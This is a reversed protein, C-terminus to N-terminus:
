GMKAVTMDTLLALLEPDNKLEEILNKKYTAIKILDPNKEHKEYEKFGDPQEIYFKQGEQIVTGLELGVEVIEAERNIGEDFTLVTTGEGYPKSVKNKVVKVKVQNGIITDGEKVQKIRKVELRQSAYFKLAKGGPTTTGAMFMGINDRIQNIFIITCGNTACVRILKRLGQSMARALLGISQKGIEEDFEAQPVLSAVSDVVILDVIGSKALAEATQLVEEAISIQSLALKDLDVGLKEAYNVDLAQEADIFACNGGKKQVNGITTLAVSTKGSAEPGFVEIVRGRPFGGGLVNDIVVSGSSFREVEVDQIDNVFNILNDKGKYAKNMAQLLDKFRDQRNIEKEAM